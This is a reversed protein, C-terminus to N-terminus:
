RNVNDEKEFEDMIALTVLPPATSSLSVGRADPSALYQELLDVSVGSLELNTKLGKYIKKLGSVQKRLFNHQVGDWLKPDAVSYPRMDLTQSTLAKVEFAAKILDREAQSGRNIGIKRLLDPYSLSSPGTQYFQYVRGFFSKVLLYKPTDEGEVVYSGAKFQIPEGSILSKSPDL